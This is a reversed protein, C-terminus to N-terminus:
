IKKLSNFAYKIEKESAGKLDKLKSIADSVPLGAKKLLWHLTAIVELQRIDKNKLFTQLEIFRRELEDPIFKGTNAKIQKDKTKYLDDALAPSYPGRIYLNFHYSPSVGFLQAFYYIKQCKLREGFSDVSGSGLRKLVSFAFLTEDYSKTFIKEEQM